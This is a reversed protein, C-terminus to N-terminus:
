KDNILLTEHPSVEGMLNVVQMGKCDQVDDQSSLGRIYM